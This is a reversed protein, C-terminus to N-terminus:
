GIEKWFGLLKLSYPLIRLKCSLNYINIICKLGIIYDRCSDNNILSMHSVIMSHARSQLKHLLMVYIIDLM